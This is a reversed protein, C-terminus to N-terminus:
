KQHQEKRYTHYSGQVWTSSRIDKTFDIDAGLYCMEIRKRTRFKRINSLEIGLDRIQSDELVKDNTGDERHRVIINEEDMQDLTSFRNKVDIGKLSQKKNRGGKVEIWEGQKGTREESRCRVNNLRVQEIENGSRGREARNKPRVSVEKRVGELKGNLRCVEERLNRAEVEAKETVNKERQSLQQFMLEMRKMRESEIMMELKSM